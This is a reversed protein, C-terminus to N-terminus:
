IFRFLHIEHKEKLYWVQERLRLRGANLKCKFVKEIMKISSRKYNRQANLVFRLSNKLNNSFM